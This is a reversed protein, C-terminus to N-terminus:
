VIGVPVLELITKAIRDGEKVSSSLRHGAVGPFTAQLDEPLLMERGEIVAWAKALALLNISARPSLGAYNSYGSNRSAQILAQLYDLIPESVFVAKARDQWKKLSRVNSLPQLNALESHQGGNILLDREAEPTPYGLEMGVLFRDLQSDPLTYSGAMDSPNQTAIVVFPEPLLHTTGDTTVQREEMAELLASQAKPPARNIEDVLLLSSFVPGKHFEFRNKEQNFISVGIVDAPLLDSTFQLRKWPLGLSIALSRALTTKGVGPTDEILLHGKAIICALALRVQLPKGAIVSDLQCLLAKISHLYDYAFSLKRQPAMM